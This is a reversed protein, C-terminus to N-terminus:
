HRTEPFDPPAPHHATFRGLHSAIAGDYAATHAFAKRALRFRTADSIEGVTDIEALVAASDAPDVRGGGRKHNKAASPKRPAGGIDINEIIEDFPAGRAVTERFPYLNVVVLDIPVIGAAQM